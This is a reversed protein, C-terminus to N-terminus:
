SVDQWGSTRRQTRRERVRQSHRGGLSNYDNDDVSQAPMGELTV